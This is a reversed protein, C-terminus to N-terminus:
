SLTHGNEYVRIHFKKVRLKEDIKVKMKYVSIKYSLKKKFLM